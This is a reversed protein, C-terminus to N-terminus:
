PQSSPAYLTRKVREFLRYLRTNRVLGLKFEWHAIRADREAIVAEKERIVARLQEIQADRLRLGADRMALEQVRQRYSAAVLQYDAGWPWDMEVEFLWRGGPHREMADAPLEFILQPDRSTSLFVDGFAGPCHHVDVLVAAEAIASAGERRWITQSPRNQDPRWHLAVSRLHFFGAREAPDFRVRLLPDALPPLPFFLHQHAKGLPAEVALSTELSVDRATTVWYLTARFSKPCWEGARHPLPQLLLRRVPEPEHQANIAAQLQEERCVFEEFMPQTEIGLWSFQNTIFEHLTSLDHQECLPQIAVPHSFGFWLLARFLVQEPTVPESMRWETDIPHYLGTDDEIINFPLCDLLWAPVPDLAAQQRLFGWYDQLLHRFDHFPAGELLARLWRTALLRGEVLPMTEEHAHRLGAATTGQDPAAIMRKHVHRQGAPLYTMSRLALHRRSESFHVFAHPLLADLRRRSASALMLFANAFDPLYGSAHLAEWCLFEEAAPSWNRTYDRSAIRYLLQHALPNACLYEGALVVRPLRHDPFPYAWRVHPLGLGALLAIWQHRDYSRRGSRPPYGYLGVWPRDHSYEAAGLWYKLGLRNDAALLLVGDAELSAVARALLIPLADDGEPGAGLLHGPDTEGGMLTALGYASSPLTLRELPECVVSVRELDHCRRRALAAQKCDTEVADVTLGQEGLYRTLAGCECGLELVRGVGSLDLARLLNARVPSFHYESAADTIRGELERSLSSLDHAQTLIPALHSFIGQPEFLDEHAVSDGALARFVGNIDPKLQNHLPLPTM